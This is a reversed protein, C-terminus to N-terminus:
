HELTSSYMMAEVCYEYGDTGDGSPIEKIAMKKRTVLDVGSFVVGFSGKGLEVKQNKENMEYEYDIKGCDGDPLFVSSLPDSDEGTVTSQAANM